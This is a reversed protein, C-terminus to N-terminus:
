SDSASLKLSSRLAESPKWLIELSIGTLKWLAELSSRLRMLGPEWAGSGLFDRRLDSELSAFKRACFAWFLGM